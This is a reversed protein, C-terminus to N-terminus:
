KGVGEWQAAPPVNQASTLYAWFGRPGEVKGPTFALTNRTTGGPRAGSGGGGARGEVGVESAGNQGPQGRDELETM